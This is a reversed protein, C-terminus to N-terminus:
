DEASQDETKAEDKHKMYYALAEGILMQYEACKPCSESGYEAKDEAMDQESNETENESTDDETQNPSMARQPKMRLLAISVQPENKKKLRDIAAM